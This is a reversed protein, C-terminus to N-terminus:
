ATESDKLRNSTGWAPLIQRPPRAVASSLVRLTLQKMGLRVSRFGGRLDSVQRDFTHHANDSSRITNFVFASLAVGAGGDLIPIQAVPSHRFGNGRSTVAWYMMASLSISIAGLVIGPLGM